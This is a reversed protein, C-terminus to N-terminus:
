APLARRLLDRKDEPIHSPFVVEFRLVLDGRTGPAKSIPMGEGRVRKEYGPSLVENCAVSLTRDDLTRVSQTHTTLAQLLTVRAKVVLDNGERTFRPHHKEAIVFVIDAPVVGPAQDGENEFTIRTGAKWGPKVHIELLKEEPRLTSGDAQLRQRTVKMRKTAGNFLEELSCNLKTVVPEAKRPGRPRPAGMGGMGGMGSGFMAPMGGMGGMGGGGGGGMEEFVSFPNSTGFFQAFIKHPDGHFTTRTGGMGGPGAAAAGGGGGMPVGGSLGEEGYKDYIARKEKDSLVDYAEAIEKFKAESEARRHQNKDPHWKIALKRYAKKIEDDGASRSVGLVKYFDPM